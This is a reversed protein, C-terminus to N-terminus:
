ADKESLLAARHLVDRMQQQMKPFPVTLVDRRAVFILNTGRRLEGLMPTICARLRRKARNRQVSNGVRKSVSFGIKVSDTRNKAWILSFLQSGVSRGVRYTYRFEKHRKLSYTRNM